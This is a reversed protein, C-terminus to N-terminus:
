NTAAAGAEAPAKYPQPNVPAGPGLTMLGDVIVRDGPKLGQEVVWNAGTREGLVVNRVLVKNDPGVTLVSQAGQMEEVARQPVLLANQRERVRVRIRGFQGPLLHHGPNAFTAQMELTGTKEDVQNSTDVVHGKEPFTSNDALLLELPSRRLDNAKDKISALYDSESVKFRVWIPDLPALTTLPQAANKTVLGGVQVQSDGIRGSIPATITAYELNLKATDLQARNAKLQAESASVRTRTSLRTQEVNAKRAAVTAQNAKLQATAADLDQKPAADAKVLPTLRDVDQQSKLENAEAEALDAEAQLLLVQRQALEVNAEGQAVDGQAKAVEAEYPRLDLVYLVDGARVDDGTNFLRKRLYGDVQARIEVADRAYTQAAYETFIPVTEPQMEVFSVPQAQPGPANAHATTSNCGALSLGALSTLFIVILQSALNRDQM